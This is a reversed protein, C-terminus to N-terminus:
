GKTDNTILRFSFFIHVRVCMWESACLACVVCLNIVTGKKPRFIKNTKQKKWGTLHTNNNNNNNKELEEYNIFLAIQKRAEWYRVLHFFKARMSSRNREKYCKM